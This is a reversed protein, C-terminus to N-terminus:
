TGKHSRSAKYAGLPFDDSCDQNRQGAWEKHDIISPQHGVEADIMAVLQDVAELQAEPYAGEDHEHVIEIGISWANMAYDEDGDYGRRDDREAVIGFAEDMGYDAWGAHHAIRNTPVAQYVTGDREVVFHSAVLNGSNAWSRIIVSASGTGAETDHMVIYRVKETPFEGHALTDDFMQIIGDPTPSEDGDETAPTTQSPEEQSPMTEGGPIEEEVAQSTPASEETGVSPSSGEVPAAVERASTEAFTLADSTVERLMGYGTLRVDTVPPVIESPDQRSPMISCECLLRTAVLSAM